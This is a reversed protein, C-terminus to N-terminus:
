QRKYDLIYFEVEEANFHKGIITKNSDLLFVSPTTMIDYQYVINKQVNSRNDDSINIHLVKLDNRRKRVMELIRKDRICKQCEPKYFFLVTYHSDIEDLSVTNGDDDIYTFSPAQKGITIKRLVDARKIIEKRINDTLNAIELTSFYNDVIHIYVLENRVDDPNFYKSYLYWLIYDRVATGASMDAASDYTKDILDDIQRCIIEPAQSNMCIDFYCDLKNKLLRSNLIRNDYLPLSDFYHEAIYEESNDNNNEPINIDKIFKIYTNLFSDSNRNLMSHHFRYLDTKLSDIKKANDPYYEIESELAKIHLRNRMTKSYIEFYDSTEKSGKVKYTDIDMLEEVHISFKQDEAILIEFLPQLRENAIIYIGEEYKEKNTFATKNKHISSTDIVTHSKEGKYKLLYFTSDNQNDIEINIRVQSKIELPLLSILIFYLIANIIYRM